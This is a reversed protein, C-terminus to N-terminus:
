TRNDTDGNAMAIAVGLGFGLWVIPGGAILVIGLKQNDTLGGSVTELEADSLERINMADIQM